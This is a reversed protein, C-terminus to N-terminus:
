EIDFARKLYTEIHDDVYKKVFNERKDCEEETKKSWLVLAEEALKRSTVKKM